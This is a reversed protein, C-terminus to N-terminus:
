TWPLEPCLGGHCLDAMAIVAAATRFGRARAILAGIASNLGEARGNSPGHDLTACILDKYRALTKALRTFEPIRCRQMWWILGHLLAKGHDGKVKFAERLQDRMLYARYLPENDAAVKALAIRQNGTLRTGDKRLAWMAQGLACGRFVPRLVRGGALVAMALLSWYVVGNVHGLLAGDAATLIM